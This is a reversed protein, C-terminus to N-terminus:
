KSDGNIDLGGVHPLSASRPPQIAFKFRAPKFQRWDLDSLDQALFAEVARDSGLKPIKPLMTTKPKM